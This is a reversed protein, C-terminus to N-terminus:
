NGHIEGIIQKHRQIERQDNRLSIESIKGQATDAWSRLFQVSYDFAEVPRTRSAEFQFEYEVADRLQGEDRHRLHSIRRGGFRVPWSCFNEIKARQRGTLLEIPTDIELIVCNAARIALELNRKVREKQQTDVVEHRIGDIVIPGPMSLKELLRRARFLPLTVQRDPTNSNGVTMDTSAPVGINVIVEHAGALFQIDAGQRHDIM